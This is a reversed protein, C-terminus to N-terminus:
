ALRRALAKTCYYFPRSSPVGRSEGTDRKRADKLLLVAFEAHLVTYVSPSTVPYSPDKIIVGFLTIM